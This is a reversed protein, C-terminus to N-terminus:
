HAAAATSEQHFAAHWAGGHNVWTTTAYVVPPWPHGDFSGKQDLKYTVLATSPNLVIVKMDSATVSEAKLKDFGALFDTVTMYGGEDVMGSDATLEKQFTAKDHNLVAAIIAKEKAMLADSVASSAAKAAHAPKGAKTTDAQGATAVAAVSMVVVACMFLRIMRM